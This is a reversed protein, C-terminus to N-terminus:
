ACPIKTHNSIPLLKQKTRRQFSSRTEDYFGFHCNFLAKEAMDEQFFYVLATIRTNNEKTQYFAISLPFNFSTSATNGMWLPFFPLWIRTKTGYRTM